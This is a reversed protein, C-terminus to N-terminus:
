TATKYHENDIRKRIYKIWAVTSSREIVIHQSQDMHDCHRLMVGEDGASTANKSLLSICLLQPNPKSVLGKQWQLLLEADEPNGALAVSVTAVAPLRARPIAARTVLFQERSSHSSWLDSQASLGRVVFMQDQQRKSNGDGIDFCPLARVTRQGGASGDADATTLCLFDEGSMIRLPQAARVLPFFHVLQLASYTCNWDEGYTQWQVCLETRLSEDTLNLTLCQRDVHLRFPM